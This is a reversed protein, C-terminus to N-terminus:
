SRASRSRDGPPHPDAPPQDAPRRRTAAAATPPPRPDGSRRPREPVDDEDDDFFDSVPQTVWYGGLRFGKASPVCLVGAAPGAGARRFRVGHDLALADQSPERDALPDAAAAVAGDVAGPVLPEAAPDRDLRDLALRGLSDQALGVGGGPEVM